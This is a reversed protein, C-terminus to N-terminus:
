LITLGQRDIAPTPRTPNKKQFAKLQFARIRRIPIM